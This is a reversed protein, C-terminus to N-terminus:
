VSRSKPLSLLIREAPANYRHPGGFAHLDEWPGATSSSRSGFDLLKVGTKTLLVYGPKLERHVIGRHATDLADGIEIAYRLVGKVLM